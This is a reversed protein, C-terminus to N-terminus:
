SNSSDLSLGEISLPPLHLFDVIAQAETEIQSTLSRAIWICGAIPNVEAPNAPNSAGTLRLEYRYWDGHPIKILEAAKISKLNFRRDGPRPFLSATRVILLQRSRDFIYSKRVLVADILWLGFGIWAILVLGIMPVIEAPIMGPYTQTFTQAQSDSFFLKLAPDVPVEAVKEGFPPVTLFYRDFEEQAELNSRTGVVVGQVQPFQVPPLQNMGFFRTQLLECKFQQKKIRECSITQTGSQQVIFLLATLGSGAFLLGPLLALLTLLLNLGPKVRLQTQTQQISM